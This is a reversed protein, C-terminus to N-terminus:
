QWILQGDAWLRRRRVPRGDGFNPSLQYSTRRPSDETTRNAGITAAASFGRNLALESVEQACIAGSRPM